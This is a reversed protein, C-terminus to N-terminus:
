LNQKEKEQKLANEVFKAWEYQRLKKAAKIELELRKLLTKEIEKVQEKSCTIQLMPVQRKAIEMLREDSLHPASQKLYEFRLQQVNIM